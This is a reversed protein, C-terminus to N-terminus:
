KFTYIKFSSIQKTLNAHIVTTLVSSFSMSYSASGVSTNSLPRSHPYFSFGTGIVNDRTKSITWESLWMTGLKERIM